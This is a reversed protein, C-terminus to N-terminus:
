PTNGLIVSTEEIGRVPDVPQSGREAAAARKGIFRKKPQTTSAAPKGVLEAHANQGGNIDSM